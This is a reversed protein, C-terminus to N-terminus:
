RSRPRDERTSRFFLRIAQSKFGLRDRLKNELFRQYGPPLQGKRNMFFVFTPPDVKVQSAYLINFSHKGGSPPPNKSVIAEVIRNLESTKVRRHSQKYLHRALPLLREMGLGTLGSVPVTKFRELFCYFDSDELITNKKDGPVVDWFNLLVAAPKGERELLSLLRMDQDTIPEHAALVLFVVDAQQIFRTSASISYIELDEKEARPRRIGATDILRVIGKPTNLEFSVADRTTHPIDSVRSVYEKALTNMITSKGANPRGILALTIPEGTDDEDDEVEKADLDSIEIEKPARIAPAKKVAKPVLSLCWNKLEDINIRHAASAAIINEFPLSAFDSTSSEGDREAKNVVVMTPKRQGVVVSALWRDFPTIGTLADVVFMFADSTSLLRNLVAGDHEDFIGQTDALDVEVGDWNVKEVILDLTTGPMDLVITRRFGILANFLSSKGVNPRGILAIRFRKM